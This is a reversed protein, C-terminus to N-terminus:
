QLAQKVVRGSRMVFLVNEMTRIDELPNDAVAILDATYGPALRGIEDELGLARAAVTTASRLANEPSLGLGVMVAFERAATAHPFITDSGFAVPVGSAFAAGIRRNREEMLARAKEISERPFGIAEGEEVIYNMVYLTPVMPVGRERFLAAGEEDVLTAHEVSDVGARLAMVIGPAGHAHVTIRKGHRHTEEVAARIEEETYTSVNPDDGASMVGGTMMLKIWDAGYKFERRIEARLQEPGDAIRTPTEIHLDAMLNNFDGHGGTASIAHPAVLLRPGEHDGRAIARKLDVIGYYGDFEGPSRLTTFGAGLMAQANKLADLTRAASSRYLDLATLTEPNITLHAHLDILGPLCTYEDLAIVEEAAGGELGAIRDGSVRIEAAGSLTEGDFVAGCRLLTDQAAAPLVGALLLGAVVPLGFAPFRRPAFSVSRRATM